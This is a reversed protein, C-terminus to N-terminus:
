AKICNRRSIAPNASLGIPTPRGHKSSLLSDGEAVHFINVLVVPSAETNLQQFIPTKPDLPQLQLMRVEMSSHHPLSYGRHVVTIEIAGREARNLLNRLFATWCPRLLRLPSSTCVLSRKVRKSLEHVLPYIGQKGREEENRAESCHSFAPLPSKGCGTLDAAADLLV